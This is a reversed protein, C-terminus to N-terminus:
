DFTHKVPMALWVPARGLEKFQVGFRLIQMRKWACQQGALRGILLWEFANAWKHLLVFTKTALIYQLM